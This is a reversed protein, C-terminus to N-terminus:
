GVVDRESEAEADFRREVKSLKLFMQILMALLAVGGNEKSLDLRLDVVIYLMTSRGFFGEANAM